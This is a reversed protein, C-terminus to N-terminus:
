GIFKVLHAVVLDLFTKQNNASAKNEKKFLSKYTCPKEM